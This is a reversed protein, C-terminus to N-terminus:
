AVAFMTVSFSCWNVIELFGDWNNADCIESKQQYCYLPVASTLVGTLWDKYLKLPNGSRSLTQWIQTKECWSHILASIDFLLQHQKWNHGAVGLIEIRLFTGIRGPSACSVHFVDSPFCKFLKTQSNIFDARSATDRLWKFPFQLFNLLMAKDSPFNVLFASAKITQIRLPPIRSM